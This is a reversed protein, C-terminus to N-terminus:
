KKTKLIENARAIAEAMEQIRNERAKALKKAWRKEQRARQRQQIALREAEEMATKQKAKEADNFIKAAYDILKGLIQSSEKGLMEKTLCIMVGTEFSFEDGNQATATQVDGNDFTIKITSNNYVEVRKINPIIYKDGIKRGNEYYLAYINRGKTDLATRQDLRVEPESLKEKVYKELNNIDQRVDSISATASVYASSIDLASNNSTDCTITKWIDNM